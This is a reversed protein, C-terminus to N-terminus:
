TEIKLSRKLRFEAAEWRCNLTRLASKGKWQTQPELIKRPQMLFVRHCDTEADLFYKIRNAKSSGREKRNSLKRECWCQMPLNGQFPRWMPAWWNTSVPVWMTYLLLHISAVLVWLLLPVTLIPYSINNYLHYPPWKRKGFDQCWNWTRWLHM